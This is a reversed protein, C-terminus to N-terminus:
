KDSEGKKRREESRLDATGDVPVRLNFQLGTPVLKDTEVPNGESDLFRVDSVALRYLVNPGFWKSDSLKSDVVVVSIDFKDGLNLFDIKIQNPHIM